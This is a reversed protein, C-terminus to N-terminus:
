KQPESGGEGTPEEEPTNGLDVDQGLWVGRLVKTLPDKPDIDEMMAIGKRVLEDDNIQRGIYAILMASGSSRRGENMRQTLTAVDERLRDVTPLLGDGYSIDISEPYRTFMNRLTLSASAYVQAGLQTNALAGMALPHDPRLRLARIFEREAVFFDGQRLAAEGSRMVETYRDAGEAAFTTIMQRHRLMDLTVGDPVITPRDTHGISRPEEPDSQINRDPLGVVEPLVPGPNRPLAIPNSLLPDNPSGAMWDTMGAMRRNVDEGFTDPTVTAGSAAYREAVSQTIADYEPSVGVGQQLRPAVFGDEAISFGSYDSEFRVGAGENVGNIADEILRAQDYLSLGQAGVDLEPRVNQLGRLSSATLRTTVGDPTRMLALTDPAAPGQLMGAQSYQQFAMMDLRTRAELYSAYDRQEDARREDLVSGTVGASDSYFERIMGLDQGFRLPNADRGLGGISYASSARFEFLDDTGTEGRFDRAATYGVTDRFARGGVVNGTILLNQAGFDPTGVPANRGGSGDRLNADLADGGGLADQAAAPTSLVVAALATVLPLFPNVSRPTTDKHM